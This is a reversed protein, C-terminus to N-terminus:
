DGGELDDYESLTATVPLALRSWYSSLQMLEQKVKQYIAKYPTGADVEASIIGAMTRELMTIWVLRDAPVTDRKDHGVLSKILKSYTLYLKDHNRSGQSKALEVLRKIESTEQLRVVKGQARESQWELSRREILLHRMQVFSQALKKKFKIVRPSNDMLTMLFIAQQENLDYIVREQGRTKTGRGSSSFLRGLEKLDQEYRSITQVITKHKRGISEAIIWSDTYVDNYQIKTINTDKGDKVASYLLPAM